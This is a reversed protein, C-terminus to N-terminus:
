DAQQMEQQDRSVLKGDRAQLAVWIVKRAGVCTKNNRTLYQFIFRRNKEPVAKDKLLRMLFATQKPTIPDQVRKVTETEALKQQLAAIEKVLQNQTRANHNVHSM